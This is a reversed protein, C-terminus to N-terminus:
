HRHCQMPPKCNANLLVVLCSMVWIWLLTRHSQCYRPISRPINDIGCFSTIFRFLTISNTVSFVINLTSTLRGLETEMKGVLDRTKQLELERPEVQQKLDKIKFDLVFKFKELEQLFLLFINLSFAEVSVCVCVNQM